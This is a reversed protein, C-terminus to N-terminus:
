LPMSIDSRKYVENNNIKFEDRCIDACRKLLEKKANCGEILVSCSVFIAEAAYLASHCSVICAAASISASAIAAAAEHNPAPIKASNYAITTADCADLCAAKLESEGVKGLAFQKAVNLAKLSRDDQLLHKVLESCRVKAMTIKRMDGLHFDKRKEFVYWLMWDGRDCTQWATKFSKEGVWEIAEVCANLEKLEEKFTM